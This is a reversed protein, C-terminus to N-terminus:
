VDSHQPRDRYPQLPYWYRQVTGSWYVLISNRTVAGHNQIVDTNWPDSVCYRDVNTYWPVASHLRRFM